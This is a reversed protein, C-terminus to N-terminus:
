RPKGRAQAIRTWTQSKCALGAILCGNVVLTSASSLELTGDVERGLDPVFVTGAWVGDDGRRLDHFLETGILRDTGGAAADAKADASASVVTGCLGGDCTAVRIRVSDTANRWTGVPSAPAAFAPTALVLAALLLRRMAGGYGLIM